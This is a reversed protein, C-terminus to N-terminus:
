RFFFYYFFFAVLAALISYITYLAAEHNATPLPGSDPKLSAFAEEFEADDQFKGKKAILGVTANPLNKIALARICVNAVSERAIQGSKDDKPLFEVREEFGM